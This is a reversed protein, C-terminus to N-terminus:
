RLQQCKSVLSGKDKTLITKLQPIKGSSKAQQIKKSIETLDIENYLHGFHKPHFVLDLVDEHDELFVSYNIRLLIGATSVMGNMRQDYTKPVFYQRACKSLYGFLEKFILDDEADKLLEIATDNGLAQVYEVLNGKSIPVSCFDVLDAEADDRLGEVQVDMRLLYFRVDESTLEEVVPIVDSDESQEKLLSLLNVVFDPRDHYFHCLNKLEESNSCHAATEYDNFTDGVLAQKFRRLYTSM